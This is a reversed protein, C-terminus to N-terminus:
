SILSFSEGFADFFMNFHTKFRKFVRELIM